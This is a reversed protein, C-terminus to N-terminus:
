CSDDAGIISIVKWAEQEATARSSGTFDGQTSDFLHPNTSLFNGLSDLNHQVAILTQETVNLTLTKPSHLNM